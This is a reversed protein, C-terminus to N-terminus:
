KQIENIGRDYSDKYSPESLQDTHKPKAWHQGVNKYIPACTASPQSPAPAM